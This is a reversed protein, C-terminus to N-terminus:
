EAEPAMEEEPLLEAAEPEAAEIHQAVKEGDVEELSLTVDQGVSFDQFSVGEAFHYTMGDDLTLSRADEDISQIKGSVEDAALALGASAFLAVASLAGIMKKM